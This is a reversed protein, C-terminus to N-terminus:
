MYKAQDNHIVLDRLINCLCGRQYNCYETCYSPTYGRCVVASGVLVGSAGFYSKQIVYAAVIV